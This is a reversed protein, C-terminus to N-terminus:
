NFRRKTQIDFVKESLDPGDEFQSYWEDKESRFPTYHCNKNTIKSGKLLNHQRVLRDEIEFDQKGCKSFDSSQANNFSNYFHFHSRDREQIALRSMHETSLKCSEFYPDFKNM